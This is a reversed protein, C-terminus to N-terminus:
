SPCPTGDRDACCSGQSEPLWFHDQLPTSFPFRCPGRGRPYRLQASGIPGCAKSSGQVVGDAMVAGKWFFPWDQVEYCVLSTDSASSNDKPSLTGCKAQFMTEVATTHLQQGPGSCHAVGRRTSSPNALCPSPTRRLSQWKHSGQTRARYYLHPVTVYAPMTCFPTLLRRM